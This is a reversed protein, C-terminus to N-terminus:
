CARPLWIGRGLRPTDATRSRHAHLAHWSRSLLFQLDCRLAGRLTRLQSRASPDHTRLVLDHAGPAMEDSECGAHAARMPGRAFATGCDGHQARPYRSLIAGFAASGVCDSASITRPEDFGRRDPVYRFFSICGIQNRGAVDPDGFM